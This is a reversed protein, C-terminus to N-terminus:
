GPDRSIFITTIRRTEGTSVVCRKWIARIARKSPSHNDVSVV